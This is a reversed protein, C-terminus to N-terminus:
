VSHLFLSIERRRGESFFLIVTTVIIIFMSVFHCHFHINFLMFSYPDSSEFVQVAQSSKTNEEDESTGNHKQLLDEDTLKTDEELGKLGELGKKLGSELVADPRFGKKGCKPSSRLVRGTRQFAFTRPKM